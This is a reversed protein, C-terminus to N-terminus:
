SISLPQVTRLTYTSCSSSEDPSVSPSSDTTPAKPSTIRGELGGEVSVLYIGSPDEGTFDPPRYRAAALFKGDPTWSIQSDSGSPFDSMKREPGGLPSVLYIGTNEPPGGRSFAIYRDDPSWAPHISGAPDSTLRSAYTEGVAKVYIDRHGIEPKYWEFAVKNGDPSFTPNFEDGAYSTLAVVKPPPPESGSRDRWIWTGAAILAVSIAAAWLWRRRTHWVAPAVAALAGSDSDEKLEELAVKVDAMYQFRRAPDKRLCRNILKELDAPIAPTIGSVPKPEQHLIASLTSMKSTGQFAKQGTVM